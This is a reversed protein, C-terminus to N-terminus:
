YALTLAQKEAVAALAVEPIYNIPQSFNPQFFFDSMALEDITMQKQIAISVLNASQSVDHQSMFSGGVIRGTDKEWALSSLVSTTSLMFDPRYDSEIVTEIVDLGKEKATASNLGTAVMAQEYLEVASTAQTGLYRTTPEVINKGVLIGQRIANTALPIYDIAQTPNFFVTSADGAAYVNDESTKMYDNVIIAGNPLTELQGSFLDTNPLFGIGLIAIDAGYSGNPTTIKIGNPTNEFKSVFQNLVVDVNNKEYEKQIRETFAPGFNKALVRDAGDILTVQKGTVSLQEALEAGIYGAGIVAVRKLDKAVSKIRTADDWSKCFYVRNSDIGPINPIVPKSGTTIVIKDFQQTTVEETDLNTVTLTKSKLDAQNVQHAMLMTIGQNRMSEPTEYFMKEPDSVHDGIWLAIGCSLFSVTTNKEFVTVEAEPHESKIQKAAYVGAHTAGIIGIKM